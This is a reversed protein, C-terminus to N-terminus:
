LANYKSSILQGSLPSFNLGSSGTDCSSATVTITLANVVASIDGSLAFSTKYLYLSTLEKDFSNKIEAPFASIKLM